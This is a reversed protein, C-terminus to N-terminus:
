ISGDRAFRLRGYFQSICMGSGKTRFGVCRRPGDMLSCRSCSLGPVYVVAYDNLTFTRPFAVTLIGYVVIYVMRGDEIRVEDNAPRMDRMVGAPRTM